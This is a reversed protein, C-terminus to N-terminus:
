KIKVFRPDKCKVPIIAPVHSYNLERACICRHNGDILWYKRITTDYNGLIIPMVNHKKAILSKNNQYNIENLKYFKLLELPVYAVYWLDKSKYYMSALDKMNVSPAINLVNM